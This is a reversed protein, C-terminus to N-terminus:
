YKAGYSLTRFHDSFPQPVGPLSGQRASLASHPFNRLPVRVLVPGSQFTSSYIGPGVLTCPFYECKYM